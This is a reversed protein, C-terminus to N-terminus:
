PFIVVSKFSGVNFYIAKATGGDEAFVQFLREPSAPLASANLKNMNAASPQDSSLTLNRYLTANM